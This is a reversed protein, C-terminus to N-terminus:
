QLRPWAGQPRIRKKPTQAELDSSRLVYTSTAPQSSSGGYLWAQYAAPAVGAERTEFYHGTYVKATDARTARGFGYAPWSPRQSSVQRGLTSRDTRKPPSAM